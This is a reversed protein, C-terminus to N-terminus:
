PMIPTEGQLMHAVITWRETVSCLLWEIFSLVVTHSASPSGSLLIIWSLQKFLPVAYDCFREVLFLYFFLLYLFLSLIFCLPMILALKVSLSVFTATALSSTLSSLLVSWNSSSPFSVSLRDLECYIHPLGCQWERLRGLSQTPAPPVHYAAGYPPATCSSGFLVVFLTCTRTYSPHAASNM